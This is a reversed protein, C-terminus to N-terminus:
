LLGVGDPNGASLALMSVKAELVAACLKAPAGEWRLMAPPMPPYAGEKPPALLITPLKIPSRRFLESVCALM